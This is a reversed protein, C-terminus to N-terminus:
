QQGCHPAWCHWPASGCGAGAVGAAGVMAGGAGIGIFVVSRGGAGGTPSMDIARYRDGATQRRHLFRKRGLAEIGQPKGNARDWIGVKHPLITKNFRARNEGGDGDPPWLPLSAPAV